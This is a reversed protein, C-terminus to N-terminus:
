HGAKKGPLVHMAAVIIGGLLLGFVAQGSTNILWEWLGAV